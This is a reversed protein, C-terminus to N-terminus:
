LTFTIDTEERHNPLGALDLAYSHKKLAEEYTMRVSDAQQKKNAICVGAKFALVNWAWGLLSSIQFLDIWILIHHKERLWKLAVAHTIPPNGKIGCLKDIIYRFDGGKKWILDRVEISCYDEQINNNM